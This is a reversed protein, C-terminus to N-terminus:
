RAVFFGSVWNKIKVLLPKVLTIFKQNDGLIVILLIDEPFINYEKVNENNLRKM